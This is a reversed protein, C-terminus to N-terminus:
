GASTASHRRRSPKVVIAGKGEEANKKCADCVHVSEEGEITQIVIRGVSARDCWHCPAVTRKHNSKDSTADVNAASASHAGGPSTATAACRLQAQLTVVTGQLSAVKATAVKLAHEADARAQQSEKVLHQLSAVETTITQATQTTAKARSMLKRVKKQAQSLELDFQAATLVPARKNAAAHMAMDAMARVLDPVWEHCAGFAGIEVGGDGWPVIADSKYLRQKQSCAAILMGITIVSYSMAVVMRSSPVDAQTLAFVAVFSVGVSWWVAYYRAPNTYNM